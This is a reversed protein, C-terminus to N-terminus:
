KGGLCWLHEYTRVFIDDGAVALSSLVREGLSNRALLQYKPSASLVLTDGNM